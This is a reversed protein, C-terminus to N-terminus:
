CIGLKPSQDRKGGLGPPRTSLTSAMGKRWFVSNPNNKKTVPDLAPLTNKPTNRLDFSIM